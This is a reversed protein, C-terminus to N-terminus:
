SKRDIKDYVQKIVKYGIKTIKIIQINHGFRKTIWGKSELRLLRRSITQQPIGLMDNLKLETTIIEEKNRELNYLEILFFLDAYDGYTFKIEDSM